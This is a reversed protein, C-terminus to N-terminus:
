DAAPCSSPTEPRGAMEMERDEVEHLLLRSPIQNNKADFAADYYAYELDHSYWLALEARCTKVSPKSHLQPESKMLAWPITVLVVLGLFHLAIKRLM